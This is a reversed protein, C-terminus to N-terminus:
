GFRPPFPRPFVLAALGNPPVFEKRQRGPAAATPLPRVSMGRGGCRLWCTSAATGLWSEEHTLLWGALDIVRDPIGDRHTLGGTLHAGFCGGCEVAITLDAGSILGGHSSQTAGPSASAPV